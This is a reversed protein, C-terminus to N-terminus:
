FAARLSAKFVDDLDDPGTTKGAAGGVGKGSDSSVKATAGDAEKGHDLATNKKSGETSQTAGKTAGAHEGNRKGTDVFGRDNTDGQEGAAACRDSMSDDKKWPELSEDGVDFTDDGENAIVPWQPKGVGRDDADRNFLEVLPTYWKRHDVYMLRPPHVVKIGQLKLDNM